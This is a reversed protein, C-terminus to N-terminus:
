GLVEQLSACSASVSAVLGSRHSPLAPVLKASEEQGRRMASRLAEAAAGASSPAKGPAPEPVSPPEDPDRPRVRDIERQLATAHATRAAALERASDAIGSHARAIANALAADAKAATALPLLQDPEEDGSGCAALAAAAPAAALLRLVRRRQLVPLSARPLEM